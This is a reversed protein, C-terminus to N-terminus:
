YIPYNLNSIYFISFGICFLIQKSFDITIIVFKMVFGLFLIGKIVGLWGDGLFLMVENDFWVGTFKGFKIEKNQYVLLRLSM